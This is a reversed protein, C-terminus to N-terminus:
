LPLRYEIWKNGYISYIGFDNKGPPMTVEIASIGPLPRELLMNGTLDYLYVLEQQKDIVVFIENGPSFHFYQFILQDSNIRQSFLQQYRENMVTVKSFEQVVWIYRENKGDNVLHFSSERDPRPLQMRETIEGRFNAMVVEGLKSVTVLSTEKPSGGERLAYQPHMDEGLKYPSGPESEGRRNFMHWFGKRDLAFMRDGLGPVRLHIPGITLAESLSKPNWGELANGERDLLYLGGSDDALFYRYNRDNEYDVLSLESIKGTPLALPFGPLSEGLRDMAYLSSSTAFLLQLNNNRYYDIQFVDSIIQGDLVKNFVEDGEGTILYVRNSQDQVLFESGADNFNKLIKPGFTLTESFSVAKHERIAFRDQHKAQQSRLRLEGQIQYDSKSPTAHLYISEFQLIAAAHKQFFAHWSPSLSGLWNRWANNFDVAWSIQMPVSEASKAYNVTRLQELLAGSEMKDLFGKLVRISNAMVINEKYFTLYTNQFGTINARFLHTPFQDSNLLFIERGKYFDVFTSRDMGPSSQIVFDRLLETQTTAAHTPFVLVRDSRDAYAQELDIVMCSGTFGEFFGKGILEHDLDGLVVPNLILAHGMVASLESMQGLNFYSVSAANDPLLDITKTVGGHDTLETPIKPNSFFKGSFSIGSDAFEPQIRIALKSPWGALVENRSKNGLIESFGEMGSKTMVITVPEIGFSLFDGYVDILDPISSSQLNRIAEEILFSTFSMIVLNDVRAFSLTKSAGKRKMETIEVDSYLRKTSVYTNATNTQITPWLANLSAENTEMVFLWDLEEKGVPQLSALLGSQKLFRQLRGEQGTLSDLRLLMSEANRVAPVTAWEKWFGQSVLENWFGVPDRLHVLLLSEESIAEVPSRLQQGFFYRFGVFGLVCLLMIGIGVVIRRYLGSM